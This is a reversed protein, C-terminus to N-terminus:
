FADLNSTTKLYNILYSFYSNILNLGIVIWFLAFKSIFVVLHHLKQEVQLEQRWRRHLLSRLTLISREGRQRKAPCATHIGPLQDVQPHYWEGALTGWVARWLGPNSVFVSFCYLVLFYELLPSSKVRSRGLTRPTLMFISTLKFLWM